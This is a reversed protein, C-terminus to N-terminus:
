RRKCDKQEENKFVAGYKSIRPLIDIERRVSELAKGIAQREGAQAALIQVIKGAKITIEGGNLKKKL